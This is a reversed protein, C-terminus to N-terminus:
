PSPRTRSTPSSSWRAARRSASGCPTRSRAPWARVPRGPGPRARRRPARAPQTSRLGSRRPGPDHPRPQRRAPVDRGSARAGPSARRPAGRPRAPPWHVPAPREPPAQPGLLAPPWVAPVTRAPPPANRRPEAVRDSPATAWPVPGEVPRDRRPSVEGRCCGTRRWGPCPDDDRPARGRHWVAARRHHPRSGDAAGARRGRRHHVRDDRSAADWGPSSASTGRQRRCHGRRGDRARRRGRGGRGRLGHHGPVRRRRHRHGRM